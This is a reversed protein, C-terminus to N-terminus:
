VPEGDDKECARIIQGILLEAHGPIGAAADLCKVMSPAASERQDRKLLEDVLKTKEAASASRWSGMSDSAELARLPGSNAFTALTLVALWTARM